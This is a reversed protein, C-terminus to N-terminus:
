VWWPVITQYKFSGGNRVTQESTISRFFQPTTEKVGTKVWQKILLIIKEQQVTNTDIKIAGECTLFEERVELAEKGIEM